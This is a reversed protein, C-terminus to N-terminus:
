IHQKTKPNKWITLKIIIQKFQLLFTNNKKKAFFSEIRYFYLINVIDSNYDITFFNNAVDKKNKVLESCNIKQQKQQQQQSRNNELSYLYESLLIKNGCNAKCIIVSIKLKWNLKNIVKRISSRYRNKM